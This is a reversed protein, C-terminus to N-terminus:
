TRNSPSRCTKSDRGVGIRHIRWRHHRNQCQARHSGSHSRCRSRLAPHRLRGNWPLPARAGTALLLKDYELYTDDALHVAHESPLIRRVCTGFRFDIEAELYNAESRIPKPKGNLGKSLPPREYPLSLSPRLIESRSGLQLAWPHVSALHRFALAIRRLELRLHGQFGGALFQRRGLPGILVANGRRHDPAPRMRCDLVHGRCKIADERWAAPNPSLCRSAARWSQGTPRPVPNKDAAELRYERGRPARASFRVRMSIM